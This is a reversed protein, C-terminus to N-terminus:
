GEMMTLAYNPSLHELPVISGRIDGYTTECEPCIYATVLYLSSNFPVARTDSIEILASDDNLCTKAMPLLEGRLDPTAWLLRHESM